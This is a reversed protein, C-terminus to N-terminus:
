NTRAAARLLDDSLASSAEIIHDFGAARAALALRASSVVATAHRLQVLADAPLLRCLNDLAEASSLLIRASAPLQRVADIHRRDLRPGVRRYVHLEQLHAGRALLTERLLGRGGPAGILAVQRGTLDALAPHDLLGESDHRAPVIATRIGQQFLARATGQGLAFVNALTHLPCLAAAFRVAAPSSFILVSAALGKHLAARAVIPEAMGRLSLGPLLLPVGGRARIKRAM